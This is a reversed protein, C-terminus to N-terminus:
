GTEVPGYVTRQRCPVDAARPVEDGHTREDHDHRQVVTGAPVTIVVCACAFASGQPRARRRLVRRRAARVGPPRAELGGMHGAEPIEWLAKPEGAAEFYRRNLDEGNPSNTGRHAAAPSTRDERRPGRPREAAIPELVRRALRVQDRPLHRGAGSRPRDGEGRRADRHADAGRRRRLRRGQARRDRSRGRADARRRGVPRHRRHAGDRSPVYWGELELGDETTFTVDESAVGLHNAPVVARLLAAVVKPDLASGGVAVRRLTRAFDEVDTVRDKLLYGLGAPAEALLRM